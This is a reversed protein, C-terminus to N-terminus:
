AVRSLNVFCQPFQVAGNRQVARQNRGAFFQGGEMQGASTRPLGDLLEFRKRSQVRQGAAQDIDRQDESTRTLTLSSDHGETAGGFLVRAGSRM